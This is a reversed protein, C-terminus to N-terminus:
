RTLFLGYIISLIALTIFIYKGYCVIILLIFIAAM